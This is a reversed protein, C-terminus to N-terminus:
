SFEQSMLVPTVDLSPTIDCHSGVGMEAEMLETFIASEEILAKTSFPIESEVTMIGGADSFVQIGRQIKTVDQEFKATGDDGSYDWDGELHTMTAIYAPARTGLDDTDPEDTDTDGPTTPTCAFTLLLALPTVFQSVPQM